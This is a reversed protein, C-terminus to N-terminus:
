AHERFATLAAETIEEPTGRSNDLVVGAEDPQLPELDALQSDLLSVPMFHGKRTKMREALQARDVQLHAFWVDGGTRLVDRYRRKLASSTVVGGTAQHERIWAAIAELWPARDEDTLPTGATMKDINAKPHFTDAEAYEVGLAEALATGITTKGSGSVGMVVIVTM